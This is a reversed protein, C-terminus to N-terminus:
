RTKKVGVRGCLGSLGCRSCFPSVPTCVRQGYSVLLENIEIWYRGPLKARLARETEEPSRTRVYGLRNTIRHVHTDVCIGPKGYGLTVVLNATKRGVGPLALLEDIDDPVRGGHDRLLAACTGLIHRAKTRYFGAPYIARAIEAAGLKAMSRPTKALRFLRESAGRTVEDKTRLSILTSVLVKFPDRGRSVETVAQPRLGAAARRLTGVVRGIDGDRVGSGVKAM